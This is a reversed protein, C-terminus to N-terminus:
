RPKAVARAAAGVEVTWRSADGQYSGKWFFTRKGNADFVFTDHKSAGTRMASWAQGDADRFIPLAVRSQFEKANADGLVIIQVDLNEAALDDQLQQAVVSNSQCYPCFGELLVVVVTRGRFHELGYSQGFRESKPQVDERQWTPFALQEGGSPAPTSPTGSSSSGGPAQGPPTVVEQKPLEGDGQEPDNQGSQVNCALSLTVLSTVVLSAFRNM